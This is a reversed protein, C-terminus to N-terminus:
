MLNRLHPLPLREVNQIDYMYIISIKSPRMRADLSPSNAVDPMRVLWSRINSRMHCTSCHVNYGMSSPGSTEAAWLGVLHARQINMCPHNETIWSPELLGKPLIGTSWVISSVTLLPVCVGPPGVPETQFWPSHASVVQGGLIPGHVQFRQSVHCALATGFKRM